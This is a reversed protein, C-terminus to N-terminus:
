SSGTMGNVIVKSPINQRLGFFKFDNFYAGKDPQYYDTKFRSLFVASYKRNYIFM